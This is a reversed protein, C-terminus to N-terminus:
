KSESFVQGLITEVVAVALAIWALVRWIEWGGVTAPGAQKWALDPQWRVVTAVSSFQALQGEALLDLRSERPDTQAAFKLKVPPETQITVDYAGALDIVESLLVPRNEVLEVRRYQRLKEGHTILADKGLADETTRYVFRDGVAINIAKNQQELVAGLTRYLLPVFAPRM